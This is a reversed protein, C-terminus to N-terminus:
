NDHLHQLDYDIMAHVIDNFKMKPKWGLEKRIKTADGLLVPVENPRKYKDSTTVYKKWDLGLYSFAEKVFEEITHTEETAVVYINPKEQQMIMYIAEVFEPSWGWDRKADLNGLELSDQLGSKIRAVARTVKKTLFNGGRRPSEHNFLRIGA